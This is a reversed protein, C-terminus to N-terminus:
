PLSLCLLSCFSKVCYHRCWVCHTGCGMRSSTRATSTCLCISEPDISARIDASHHRSSASTPVFGPGAEDDDVVVAFSTDAVQLTWPGDSVLLYAISPYVSTYRSGNRPVQGCPCLRKGCRSATGGHLASLPPCHASLVHPVCRARATCVAATRM